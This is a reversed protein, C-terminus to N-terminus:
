KGRLARVINFQSILAQAPAPTFTFKRVKPTPVEPYLEIEIREIPQRKQVRRNSKRDEPTVDAGTWPMRFVYEDGLVTAPSNTVSLIAPITNILGPVAGVLTATDGSLTMSPPTTVILGSSGVVIDHTVLAQGVGDVYWYGSFTYSGNSAQWTFASNEDMSFLGSPPTSDLFFRVEKTDEASTLLDALAGPGHLGTRPVAAGLVGLGSGGYHIGAMGPPQLAYCISM